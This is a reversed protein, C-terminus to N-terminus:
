PKGNPLTLTFRHAIKGTAADVVALSRSPRALTYVNDSTNTAVTGLAPLCLLYRVDTSFVADVDGLGTAAVTNTKPLSCIELQGERLFAQRHGEVSVARLAQFPVRNKRWVVSGDGSALAVYDGAEDEAIASEYVVAYPLVDDAGYAPEAMKGAATRREWLLKGQTNRARLHGGHCLNLYRHDALPITGTQVSDDTESTWLQKGDVTSIATVVANEPPGSALLLESRLAFGFLRPALMAVKVSFAKRQGFIDLFVIEGGPRRVALVPPSNGVLAVGEHDRDLQFQNRLNGAPIDWTGATGNRFVAVLNTKTASFWIVEQESYQYRPPLVSTARVWVSTVILSVVCAWVVVCKARKQRRM